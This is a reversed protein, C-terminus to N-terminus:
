GRVPVMSETEYVFKSVANVVQHPGHITQTAAGYVRGPRLGWVTGEFDHQPPYAEQQARTRQSVSTKATLGSGKGM